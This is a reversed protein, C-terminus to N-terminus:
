HQSRNHIQEELDKLALGLVTTYLVTYLNDSNNRCQMPCDTYHDITTRNVNGIKIPLSGLYAAIYGKYRWQGSVLAMTM